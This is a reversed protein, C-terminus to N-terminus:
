KTQLWTNSTMPLIVSLLSLNDRTLLRVSRSVLLDSRESLKICPVAKDLNPIHSQSCAISSGDLVERLILYAISGQHPVM